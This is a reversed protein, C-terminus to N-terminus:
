CSIEIIHLEVVLRKKLVTLLFALTVRHLYSKQSTIAWNASMWHKYVSPVRHKHIYEFYSAMNSMELSKLKRTQADDTM